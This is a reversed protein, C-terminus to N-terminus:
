RKNEKARLKLWCTLKREIQKPMDYARFRGGKLARITIQHSPLNSDELRLNVVEAVRMAFFYVLSFLLDYKKKAKRAAKMFRELEDASLYRRRLVATGRPRGPRRKDNM